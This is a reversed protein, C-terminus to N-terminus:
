GFSLRFSTKDQGHYKPRGRLMLLLCTLSDPTARLVMALEVLTAVQSKTFTQEQGTAHAAWDILLRNLAWSVFKWQTEFSLQNIWVAATEYVSKPIHSLPVDSLPSKKVM